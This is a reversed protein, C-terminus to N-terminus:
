GNHRSSVKGVGHGSAPHGKQEQVAEAFVFFDPGGKYLRQTGGVPDQGYIQGTEPLASPVALVLGYFVHGGFYIQKQVLQIKRFNNYHGM